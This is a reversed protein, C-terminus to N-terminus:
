CLNTLQIKTNVLFLFCLFRLDGPLGGALSSDTSSSRTLRSGKQSGAGASRPRSERGEAQGQPASSMKQTVNSTTPQTKQVCTVRSLRKKTPTLHDSQKTSPLVSSDVNDSMQTPPSTVHPKAVSTASTTKSTVSILTKSVSTSSKTVPVSSVKTSTGASKSVTTISSQNCTSKAAATTSSLM